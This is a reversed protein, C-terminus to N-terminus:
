TSQSDKDKCDKFVSRQSGRRELWAGFSSNSEHMSNNALDKDKRRLWRSNLAEAPTYRDRPDVRLLNRILDIAYQPIDEWYEQHFEYVGSTILEALESEPADFPAYGGLLVYIVVGCSWMDCLQDYGNEHTLLEPAVYQPSFPLFSDFLFLHHTKPCMM